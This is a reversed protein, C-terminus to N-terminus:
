PSATRLAVVTRQSRSLAFFVASCAYFCAAVILLRRFGFLLSTYEALGGFVAGAINAGFAQHLAVTQRLSLAFIVGAFLVPGFVLLFSGALRPLAAVGLFVNTPLLVGLSLASWVGVYNIWLRRPSMWLALANSALIMGLVGSLVVSNVAWTSGFLLAMVVVARTEILMFGAGLCFMHSQFYFDAAPGNRGPTFLLLLALSLGGMVLMGNLSLEPIMPHHLYLFPWDDTAPRLGPRPGVVTAPAFRTWVNGDESSPQQRFGNATERNPPRDNRLWYAQHQRFAGRLRDTDGAFLMTLGHGREEARITDRHPMN